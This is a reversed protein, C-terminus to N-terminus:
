ARNTHSAGTAAASPRRSPIRSRLGLRDSGRGSGRAQAAPQARPQRRNPRQGRAPRRLDRRAAARALPDQRPTRVAAVAPPVGGAHAARRARRLVAQVRMVIERPNFPKCICDDAGLELGLLRDIDEVRATLMLIPVPNDRRLTRPIELGDMGPLMLDLVIAHVDNRQLWPLMEDGREGPASDAVVLTWHEGEDLLTLEVRGPGDTYRRANLLLNDLLQGIRKRDGRVWAPQPPAQWAVELGASQLGGRHNALRDEIAEALDLTVFRYELAAAAALERQNLDAVLGTLRECEALLSALAGPTTPRVGDILTQLEAQLVTLPTRLEHAIDQGWRRRADRHQDLTAALHDFDRALAAVEARGRVGIRRSFDGAALAQTGLSLQRVPGVVRRAVIFGFLVALALAIAGGIAASRPQAVAVARVRDRAQGRRAAAGGRQALGRDHRRAAGAGAGAHHAREPTGRRLAAACRGTAPAPRLRLRRRALAPAAPRIRAARRAAATRARTGAAAHHPHRQESRGASGHPMPDARLADWGGNQEYELALRAAGRRPARAMSVGDLYAVFGHAFTRQQWWLAGGLTVVSLLACALFIRLWPSMRHGVASPAPAIRGAAVRGGISPMPSAAHILEARIRPGRQSMPIGRPARRDRAGGHQRAANCGRQLFRPFIECDDRAVHM